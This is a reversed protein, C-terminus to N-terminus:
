ADEEEGPARAAPDDEGGAPDAMAADRPPTVPDFAGVRVVRRAGGPGPEAVLLRVREGDVLPWLGPDYRQAAGALAPEHLLGVRAGALAPDALVRAIAAVAGADFLDGRVCLDLPGPPPAAGRMEPPTRAMALARAAPDLPGAESRLAHRVAERYTRRLGHYNTVIHTAGARTLSGAEDLGLALPAGPSLHAVAARGFAAQARWLHTADAGARVEDWPGLRLAAERRLMLSSYAMHLVAEGLRWGTTPRLDARVRAWDVTCAMLLPDRLFAALQAEIKRPHSWDDADHTTVFAGRAEALGLNRAAYAGGNRAARLPRIRPDDEAMARAVEFTADSSADDVVLVEIDPYSQAGLSRLATALSAEARHAPVIVSVLGMPPLGRAAPAADLNALTAPAGEDRPRLPELGRRELVAGIGALRDRAAEELGALLLAADPDPLPEGDPGPAAPVRRLLERALARDGLREALVARPVLLPKTGAIEPRLAAARDLLAAAEGPRDDFDLRIALRRLAEARGRRGAGPDDALRLLAEGAPGPLAGWLHRSLRLVEGMRSPEGPPRGAARGHRLYHLLPNEFPGLGAAGAYPRSRFHPGPDRGMRAGIWAYHQSARLGTAAVDPYTAAYWGGQVLGSRAIESADRALEESISPM